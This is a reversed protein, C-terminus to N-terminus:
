TRARIKFYMDTQPADFDFGLDHEFYNSLGLQKLAELPGHLASNGEGRAIVWAKGEAEM